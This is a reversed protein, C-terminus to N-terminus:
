RFREPQALYCGRCGTTESFTEDGEAFGQTPHAFRCGTERCKKCAERKLLNLSRHLLQFDSVKQQSVDMVSAHAEAEKCGWRHDVEMDQEHVPLLSINCIGTARLERVIDPRIRQNIQRDHNEGVMRLHTVRSRPGGVRKAQWNLEYLGWPCGRRLNGNGTSWHLGHAAFDEVAVWDSTMKDDPSFCKLAKQLNPKIRTMGRKDRRKNYCCSPPM